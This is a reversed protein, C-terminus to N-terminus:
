STSGSKPLQTENKVRDLTRNMETASNSDRAYHVSADADSADPCRASPSARPDDM